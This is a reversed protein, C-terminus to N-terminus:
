VSHGNDINSHSSNWIAEERNKWIYSGTNKGHDASM